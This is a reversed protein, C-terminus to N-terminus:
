RLEYYEQNELFYTTVPDDAVKPNYKKVNCILHTVGQKNGTPVELSEITKELHYKENDISIYRPIMVRADHGIKNLAKPLSYMVSGLGGVKAFPAAESGVFLIKLGQKSSFLKISM